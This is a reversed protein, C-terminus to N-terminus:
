AAQRLPQDNTAPEPLLRELQARLESESTGARISVLGDIILQSALTMGPADAKATEAGTVLAQVSLGLAFSVLIGPALRMAAMEPQGITLAMLAVCAVTGLISVAPGLARTFRALAHKRFTAHERQDRLAALKTRLELPNEIQAALDLAPALLPHIASPSHERLASPGQQTFLERCQTLEDILRRPNVSTHGFASLLARDLHLLRAAVLALVSMVLSGVLALVPFFDISAIDM